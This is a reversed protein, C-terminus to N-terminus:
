LRGFSVGRWTWGADLVADRLPDKMDATDFRFTETKHRRGDAGREYTWKRSVMTVQGRGYKRSMRKPRPPDGVWEVEWMQDVARVEHNAPVLRMRTKLTRRLQTWRRAPERILWEAVLDAGEKPTANRVVYPVDPGNIALLAARVEKASRPAVGSNPYKTGNMKDFFGM